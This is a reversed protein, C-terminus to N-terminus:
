ILLMLHTAKNSHNSLLSKKMLKKTQQSTIKHLEIKNDNIFLFPSARKGGKIILFNKALMNVFSM